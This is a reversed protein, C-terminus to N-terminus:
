ANRYKFLYFLSNIACILTFVISAAHFYISESYSTSLREFIKGFVLISGLVSVLFLYQKIIQSFNFALFIGLTLISFQGVSIAVIVSRYNFLSGFILFLVILSFIPLSYIMIKKSLLNSHDFYLDISSSMLWLATSGALCISFSFYDPKIEALGWASWLVNFFSIAGVSVFTSFFLIQVWSAPLRKRSQKYEKLIKPKLFTAFPMMVVTTLLSNKIYILLIALDQTKDYYELSLRGINALIYSLFIVILAVRSMRYLYKIHVRLSKVKWNELSEPLSDYVAFISGIFLSLPYILVSNFDINIFILACIIIGIGRKFQTKTLASYNELVLNRQIQINYLGTSACAAIVMLSLWFLQLNGSVWQVLISLILISLSSIIVIVVGSAFLNLGSYSSKEYFAIVSSRESALTLFFPLFLIIGDIIALQAIDEVSSNRVIFLLLILSPFQAIFSGLYLGFKSKIDSM